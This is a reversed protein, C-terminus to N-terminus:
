CAPPCFVLAGSGSPGGVCCGTGQASSGTKIVSATISCGSPVHIVVCGSADPGEVLFGLDDGDEKTGSVMFGDCDPFKGPDSEFCNGGECGEYKSTYGMAGIGDGCSVQMGIFSISGQPITTTTSTSTTSTSTTSTSTTSSSTTTTPSTVAASAPSMQLSMMVPPVWVLGSVAAGRRLVERRTLEKPGTSGDSELVGANEVSM